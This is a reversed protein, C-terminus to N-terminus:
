EIRLGCICQLEYCIEVFYFFAANYVALQTVIIIAHLISVKM